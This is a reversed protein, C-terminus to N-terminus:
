CAGQSYKKQKISKTLNDIKESIEKDITTLSGAIKWCYLAMQWEEDKEFALAKKRYEQVMQSESNGSVFFNGACGTFFLMVCGPFFCLLLKKM